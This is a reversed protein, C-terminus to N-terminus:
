ISDVLESKNKTSTPEMTSSSGISIQNVCVCKSSVPARSGMWGYVASFSCAEQWAARLCEPAAVLTSVSADSKFVSFSACGFCQYDNCACRDAFWLTHLLM